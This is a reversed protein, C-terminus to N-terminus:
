ATAVPPSVLSLLDLEPDAPADNKEPQFFQLVFIVALLALGALRLPRQM